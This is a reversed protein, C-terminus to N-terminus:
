LVLLIHHVHAVPLRPSLLAAPAFFLLSFCFLHCSRVLRQPGRRWSPADWIFGMERERETPRGTGGARESANELRVQEQAGYTCMAATAPERTLIAPFVSSLVSTHLLFFALPLTLSLAAAAGKPSHQTTASDRLAPFCRGPLRLRRKWSVRPPTSSIPKSRM